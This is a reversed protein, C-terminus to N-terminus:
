SDDRKRKLAGNSSSSSSASSSSPFAYRTVEGALSVLSIMKDSIDAQVALTLVKPLERIMRGDLFSYFRLSLGLSGVALLHKYAKLTFVMESQPYDIFPSPQREGM